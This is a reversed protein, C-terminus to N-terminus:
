YGRGHLASVGLRVYGQGNVTLQGYPHWFHDVRVLKGLRIAVIIGFCALPICRGCLCAVYCTIDRREFHLRGAIPQYVYVVDPRFVFSPWVAYIYLIAKNIYDEGDFASLLYCAM